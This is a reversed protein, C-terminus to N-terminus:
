DPLIGKREARTLFDQFDPLPGEPDEDYAGRPDGGYKYDDEVRLRHIDILHKYVEPESNTREFLKSFYTAPDQLTAAMPM